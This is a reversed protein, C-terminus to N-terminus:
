SRNSKAKKSLRRKVMERIIIAYRFVGPTKKIFLNMACPANRGPMRASM